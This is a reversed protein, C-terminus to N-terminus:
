RRRWECTGDPRDEILVNLAELEERIADARDFDRSLRAAQRQQILFEILGSEGEAGSPHNSGSIGLFVTPNLYLLGLIDALRKLEVGYAAALSRKGQDIARNIEKAIDFLVAIASPTNFDDDLARDFTM